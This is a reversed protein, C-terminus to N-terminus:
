NGETEHNLASLKSELINNFLWNEYSSLNTSNPNLIFIM